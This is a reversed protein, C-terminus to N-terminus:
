LREGHGPRHRLGASQSVMSAAIITGAMLQYPSVPKQLAHPNYIDKEPGAKLFSLKRAQDAAGDSGLGELDGAALAKAREAARLASLSTLDGDTTTPTPRPVPDPRPVPLVDTHSPAKAQIRFFVQSERAQLGLRALKAKELADADDLADPRPILKPIGAPLKADDVKKEARM